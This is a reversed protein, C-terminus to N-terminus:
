GEMNKPYDFFMLQKEAKPFDQWRDCDATVAFISCTPMNDIVAVRLLNAFQTIGNNHSFIAVRQWRNDLGDIVSFFTEAPPLYLEPKLIIDEKGIGYTEAFVKATKLARKAPSSVFADIAIGRNFLRAAMMPADRKGRENLPRDFDDLNFSWDSKAHRILFLSRM